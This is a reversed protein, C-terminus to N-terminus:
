TRLILQHQEHITLCTGSLRGWPLVTLFQGVGHGLGTLGTYYGVPRGEPLDLESVMKNIYPTLQTSVVPVTLKIFYVAALQARPLATPEGLTRPPPLLPAREDTDQVAPQEEDINM